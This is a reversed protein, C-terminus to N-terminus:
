ATEEDDKKGKKILKGDTYIAIKITDATEQTLLWRVTVPKPEGNVVRATGAETLQRRIKRLRQVTDADMDSTVTRVQTGVPGVFGTTRAVKAKGGATLANVAGFYPNEVTGT